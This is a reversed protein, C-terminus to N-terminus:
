KRQYSSWLSLNSKSCLPGAVIDSVLSENASCWWRVPHWRSIPDNSGKFLLIEDTDVEEADCQLVTNVLIGAPSSAIPLDHQTGVMGRQAPLGQYKFQSNHFHFSYKNDATGTVHRPLHTSVVFSCDSKGIHHFEETHLLRM